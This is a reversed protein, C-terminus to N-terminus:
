QSDGTKHYDIGINSEHNQFSTIMKNKYCLVMQILKFSGGVELFCIVIIKSELLIQQLNHGQHKM